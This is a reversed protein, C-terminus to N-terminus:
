RSGGPWGVRVDCEPEGSCGSEGSDPERSLECPRSLHPREGSRRADMGTETEGEVADEDEERASENWVLFCAHIGTVLDELLDPAPRALDLPVLRVDLETSKVGYRSVMEEAEELVQSFHALNPIKGDAIVMATGIMELVIALPTEGEGVRVLM